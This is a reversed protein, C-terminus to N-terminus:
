KNYLEHNDYTKDYELLVTNDIYEEDAAEIGADEEEEKEKKVKLECESEREKGGEREEDIKSMVVAAHTTKKAQAVKRMILIALLLFLVGSLVGFVITLTFHLGPGSYEIAIIHFSKTIHMYEAINSVAKSM